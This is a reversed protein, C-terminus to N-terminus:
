PELIVELFNPGAKIDATLPSTSEKRYKLPILKDLTRKDPLPEVEKNAISDPEVVPPAVCIYYKGVRVEGLQFRGDNGLSQSAGWGSDPSFISVVGFTLPKGGSTVIGEVHGVDYGRSRRCGSQAALIPLLLVLIAIFFFGRTIMIENIGISNSCNWHHVLDNSSYHDEWQKLRAAM